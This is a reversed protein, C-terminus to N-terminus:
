TKRKRSNQGSNRQRQHGYPQTDLLVNNKDKAKNLAAICSASDTLIITQEGNNPIQKTATLINKYSKPIQENNGLVSPTGSKTPRGGKTKKKTTSTDVKVKPEYWKRGIANPRREINSLRENMIEM